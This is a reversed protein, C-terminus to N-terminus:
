RFRSLVGLRDRRHFQWNMQAGCCFAPLLCPKSLLVRAADSMWHQLEPTLAVGTSDMELLKCIREKALTGFDKGTKLEMVHGLLGIGFNSYGWTKVPERTWKCRSLFHYLQTPTYDAFPNKGRVRAPRVNDPNFDFGSTYTEPCLLTIKKANFEPVKIGDPLYEEVPDDPKMEGREVADMLLLITFTKTISGIEFITDSDVARGTDDDLQGFTVVRIEHVDILAVVIGGHCEGLDPYSHLYAAIAESVQEDAARTPAYCLLIAVILFILRNPSMNPPITYPCPRYRSAAQFARRNGCIVLGSVQRVLTATM